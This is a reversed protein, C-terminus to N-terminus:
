FWGLKNLTERHNFGIEEPLKDFFRVEMTEKTTGIKNVDDIKMGYAIDIVHGRPDGELDEFVGLLFLDKDNIDLNFEDKAIRKKADDMTEDKLLFSGPFHWDGECPPINRRTLLVRNGSDTVILNLAIRPVNKFSELFEEQSLRKPIKEISM